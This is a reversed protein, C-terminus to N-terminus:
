VVYEDKGNKLVAGLVECANRQLEGLTLRGKKDLGKKLGGHQKKKGLYGGGPMLVNVGARVRLPNNKMRKFLRSRGKHMWWDTIVCGGFGWEGRLIGRVLEYHYYAQVGNVSNYSTMLFHPKGEKVCIEFGYLYLERLARESLRSDNKSRNFEQNNCAFHKPCASVGASQLGRVAAAAMKGSLFPDESYYEFNRGCLPDRHLNLAPALLVDSGRAKMEEGVAAYVAETLAPDFTCALATAIPLLSSKAKLRIGSPGDTMTLPPVGRERLAASVGGMVGANGGAGLPSDMKLAGYALDELEPVTLSAVFEGLSVEGKRVASFHPKEDNQPFPSPIQAEIESRLEGKRNEGRLVERGDATETELDRFPAVRRSLREETEVRDLTFSAIREARSSTGFYIGYEGACRVYASALRDYSCFARPPIAIEGREEEGPRLLATKCFGALERAPNGLLGDPKRVYVQVVERGAREGVNKVCFKVKGEAYEAESHFRTYSLGYGFPFLVKEQAKTSFYRYGVYIDESYNNYAANGFNGSTPYDSYARAATDALKGCPNVKGTLLDACADGAEMGGQWLLLVAGVKYRETFSLDILNGMNLLVAVHAFHGTVLALMKEERDTLYYSGKKLEQDCDEGAARGIVVVATETEKRASLVQEETLPMEPLSRPWEGWGGYEAPHEESYTRYAEELSAALPIGGAKLGEAISVRYPTIVNGGSGYGSYFTDNQARGFLAIKESLPLVGDNKLLVAGEAAARRLLASTEKTVEGRYEGANARQSLPSGALRFYIKAAANILKQKFKGM